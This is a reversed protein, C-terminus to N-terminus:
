YEYDENMAVRDSKFQDRVLINSSYICHFGSMLTVRPRYWLTRLELTTKIRLHEENQPPRLQSVCCQLTVKPQGIFTRLEPCPRIKRTTKNHHKRQIVILYNDIRKKWTSRATEM